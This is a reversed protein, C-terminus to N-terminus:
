IIKRLSPNMTIWDNDLTLNLTISTGCQSLNTKCDPTFIRFSSM